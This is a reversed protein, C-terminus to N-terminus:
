TDVEKYYGAGLPEAQGTEKWAQLYSIDMAKGWTIKEGCCPCLGSELKAIPLVTAEKKSLEWAAPGDWKGWSRMNRFDYLM